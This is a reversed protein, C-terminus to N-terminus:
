MFILWNPWSGSTEGNKRRRTFAFMKLLIVDGGQMRGIAERPVDGVCDDVKTVGAFARVTQGVPDMRYKEDIHGKPRGLHSLLIVKASHEALYNITPLAEIIRTDDAVRGNDLANFDM